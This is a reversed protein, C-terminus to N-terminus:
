FMLSLELYIIEVCRKHSECINTIPRFTVFEYRGTHTHCGAKEDVLTKRIINKRCVNHICIYIQSSFMNTKTM